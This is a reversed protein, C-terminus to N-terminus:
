INSEEIYGNIKNMILCSPIVINITAYSLEKVRLYGICYILINKVNNNNNNNVNNNPDYNKINIM